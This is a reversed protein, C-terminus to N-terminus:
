IHLILSFYSELSAASFMVVLAIVVFAVLTKEKFSVQNVSHKAM